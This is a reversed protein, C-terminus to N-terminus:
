QALALHDWVQRRTPTPDFEVRPSRDFIMTARDADTYTPWDDGPCGSRAFELWRGQIDDSGRRASRRDAAVTLLSGLLRTSYMDYVALLETGHTAGIGLWRLTRPASDYRFLYTPAHRAHAEAAPWVFAGFFADAGLQICVHPRPYGPYAACIRKRTGPSVDALMREILPETVPVMKLMRTFLRGEEAGNGIIMPVPHAEGRAMAEIPHLPLFDGDVTTGIGANGPTEEM